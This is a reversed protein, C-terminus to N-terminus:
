LLNNNFGKPIELLISEPTKELLSVTRKRIIIMQKFLSQEM